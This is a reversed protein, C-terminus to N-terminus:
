NYIKQEKLYKLVDDDLSEALISQDDMNERIHTSSASNPKIRIFYIKGTKFNNDGYTNEIFGQHLKIAKTTLDNNLGPRNMVLLSTMKLIHQYNKWLHFSQFSDEGIILLFHKKKGFKKGLYELTEIMFSPGEKKLEYDEIEIEKLDKFAIELMKIKEMSSAVSLDKLPSVKNPIVLVKSLKLKKTVSKLSEIHGKHIPDFSGGFIGIYDKKSM